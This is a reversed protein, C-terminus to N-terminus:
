GKKHAGRELYLVVPSAIFISSYTGVIFGFLMTFAFSHIVPGGLWFLVATAIIATGGTIITRSLTENISVNMITALSERRMKRMNERIRDSVIVTDHVSYGVVTLLAAVTTLDFEMNALSLAGVTLLVDHILAIAAGVGFRFEFRFAIYTGMVLTAALVALAASRWLDRGVKPGVTEVRLVDYTGEGFKERLGTKIADAVSASGGHEAGLVRIQFEKGEKGVDQVVIERLETRDLASRIDAIPTPESFRVHVMTGGAFDIGYNLGGKLYVSALGILIATWSAVLMKFRPGVFDIATDPPILEFFRHKTPEKEGREPATQKATTSSPAKM